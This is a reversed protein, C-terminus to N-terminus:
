LALCPVAVHGLPGVGPCTVFHLHKDACFWGWTNLASSHIVDLLVSLGFAGTCPFIISRAFLLLASIGAVGHASRPFVAGSSLLWDPSAVRKIMENIPFGLVPLCASVPLLHSAPPSSCFRSPAWLEKWPTTPHELVRTTVPARSQSHVPFWRITSKM